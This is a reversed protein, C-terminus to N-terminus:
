AASAKAASLGIVNRLFKSISELTSLYEDLNRPKMRCRRRARFELSTESDDRSQKLPVASGWLLLPIDCLQSDSEIEALVESGSMGPMAMDVLIFDPRVAKRWEGQRRLYALCDRGNPVGKIVVNCNLERIANQILQAELPNDDVVLITYPKEHISMGVFIAIVTGTSM